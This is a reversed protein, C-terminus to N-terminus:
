DSSNREVFDLFIENMHPVSFLDIESTDTDEIGILAPRSIVPIWFKKHPIKGHSVVISPSNRISKTIIKTISQDSTQPVLEDHVYWGYIKNLIERSGAEGKDPKWQAKRIEVVGVGDIGIPDAGRNKLFFLLSTALVVVLASLFFLTYKM